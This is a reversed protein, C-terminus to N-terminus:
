PRTDLAIDLRTFSAGQLLLDKIFYSWIFPKNGTIARSLSDISHQGGSIRAATALLQSRDIVAEKDTLFEAAAKVTNAATPTDLQIHHHLRWGGSSVGRMSTRM